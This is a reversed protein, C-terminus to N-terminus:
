HANAQVPQVFRFSFKRYISDLTVAETQALKEDAPARVVLDMTGGSDKIFKLTVADQRDLLFTITRVTQPPPPTPTAQPQPTANPTASAPSQATMPPVAVPFPGIALIEVNQM